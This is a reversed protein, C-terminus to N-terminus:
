SDAAALLSLCRAAEHAAVLGCLEDLLARELDDMVAHHLNVGVPGGLEVREAALQGLEDWSLRRGDRKAYSWDVAAPLERLGDVALPRESVHRSLVRFGLEGLLEGTTRTCSNWPPTFVPEPLGPLCAELRARGELLDDRQARRDRSPGFESKHGDREHNRHALGHQHLHLRGEWQSGLETLRSALEGSLAQPIVALDLPLHHRDVVDLLELLRGDDWGIDDDRIFFDVRGPARDLAARLPDLWGDPAHQDTKSSLSSKPVM